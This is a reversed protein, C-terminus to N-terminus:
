VEGFYEKKKEEFWDKKQNQLLSKFFKQKEKEILLWKKELKPTFEDWGKNLGEKKCINCINKELRFPKPKKTKNQKTTIKQGCFDCKIELMIGGRNLAFTFGDRRNYM